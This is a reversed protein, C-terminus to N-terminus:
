RLNVVGKLINTGSEVSVIYPDRGIHLVYIYGNANRWLRFRHTNCNNLLIFKSLLSTLPLTSPNYTTSCIYKFRRADPENLPEIGGNNLYNVIKCRLINDSPNLAQIISRMWPILKRRHIRIHYRIKGCIDPRLITSVWQHMNNTDALKILLLRVTRRSRKIMTVWSLMAFRSSDLTTNVYIPLGSDYLLDLIIHIATALIINAVTRNSENGTNNTTDNASNNQETIKPPTNMTYLVVYNNM